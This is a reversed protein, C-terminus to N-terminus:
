SRERGASDRLTGSILTTEDWSGVLCQVSRDGETWGEVIPVFTWMGLPSVEYAEGTFREFEEACWAEGEAFLTDMGPHPSEAASWLDNRVAFVELAHPEGCATTQVFSIESFGDGSDFFDQVCDGQELGAVTSVSGIFRSVIVALVLISVAAALVALSVM